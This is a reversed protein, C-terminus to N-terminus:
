LPLQPSIVGAASEPLLQLTCVSVAVALATKGWSGKHFDGYAAPFLQLMCGRVSAAPAAGELPVWPM